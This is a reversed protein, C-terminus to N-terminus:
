TESLETWGFWAGGGGSGGQEARDQSADSGQLSGFAFSARLWRHRIGLLLTLSQVSTILGGGATGTQRQM